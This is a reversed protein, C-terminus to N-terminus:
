DKISEELKALTDKLAFRRKEMYSRFVWDPIKIICDDRFQKKIIRKGSPLTRWKYGTIDRHVGGKPSYRVILKYDDYNTIVSLLNSATPSTMLLGSVATRVTDLVGKLMNVLKMNNFYQMANGHVGVDDWIMVVEPESAEASERLFHIVEPITFMCHELASNWASTSDEGLHCFIEKCVRLAYCSKGIGRDGVILFGKYSYPHAKLILKGTVLPM